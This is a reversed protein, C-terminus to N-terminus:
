QASHEATRQDKYTSLSRLSSPVMGAAHLTPAGRETSLKQASPTGVRLPSAQAGVSPLFIGEGLREFCHQHLWFGSNLSQQDTGSVKQNRVASAFAGDPGGVVVASKEGMALAPCAECAAGGEFASVTDELVKSRRSGRNM